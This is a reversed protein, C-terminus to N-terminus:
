EEYAQLYFILWDLFTPFAMNEDWCKPDQVDSIKGEAMSYFINGVSDMPTWGLYFCQFSPQGFSEYFPILERPEIMKKGSYIVENQIRDQLKEYASFLQSSRIIGTDSHKSFGDHINLFALYDNPLVDSFAIKLGEIKEDAPPLGHFFSSDDRLSYVLECEFPSDFQQQVLYVGIDDLRDFFGNLFAHVHSIFPLASLWFEKTFEIRDEAALLALEYWGKPLSPAKSKTEEWSMRPHEHLAIVEHYFRVPVEEDIYKRYFRRVHSNMAGM